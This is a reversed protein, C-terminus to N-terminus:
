PRAEAARATAVSRAATRGAIRGFVLANAISSGSGAYQQGMTGGTTEGCAHLGPIVAGAATLARASPDIRVGCMTLALMAPFIEVGYFPPTAVPRMWAPDKGFRSDAGAECDANYAALTAALGPGDVGLSAALAAVTDARHVRGTRADLQEGLARHNWNPSPGGMHSPTGPAAFDFTPGDLLAFASGGEQAHVLTAVVGYPMQEDAFRQGARNVYVLWAPPVVDFFTGFGPTVLALACDHGVIAAGASAALHLGDGVCTPASVSWTVAGHRAVSPLHEAIMEASQGFGGTALVVAGTEVRDDGVTVGLVRGADDQVLGDVRARTRVEISPRAAVERTLVAVLGAGLGGIKHGRRATEVPSKIVLGFEVGLGRLWEVAETAGEALARAVGPEVSWRNVDLWRESLARWSDGEEGHDRQVSTGAAYLVGGSLATSGGIEAAAELVLVRAGADAAEIAAALGAGGAGVVCVDVADTGM